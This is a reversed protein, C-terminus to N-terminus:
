LSATPLGVRELAARLRQDFTAVRAKARSKAAAAVLADGFDPIHEPWYTLVLALDIEHLVGVGPLAIFDVLMQRIQEKPQGYIKELVSVFEAIVAQPCWLMVKLRSANLFLPAAKEQQAPNRDTVYSLLFNTDIILEQM